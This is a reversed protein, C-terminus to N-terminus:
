DDLRVSLWDVMDDHNALAKLAKKVVPRSYPNTDPMTNHIVATALTRLADVSPTFVHVNSGNPLGGMTLSGTWGQRDALAQAARKHDAENSANKLTFSPVGEARAIIRCPGTDTPGYYVTTIAKM